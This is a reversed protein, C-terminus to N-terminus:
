AEPVEDGNGFIEAVQAQVSAVAEDAGELAAVVDEGFAEALAAKAEAGGERVIQAKAVEVFLPAPMGFEVALRAGARICREIVKAAAKQRDQPPTHLVIAALQIVIPQMPWTSTQKLTKFPWKM